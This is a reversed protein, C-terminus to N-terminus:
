FFEPKETQKSLVWNYIAHVQKAKVEWTFYNRVRVRAAEGLLMLNQPNNTIDNLKHRLASVVESRDGIPIKYGVEKTVLEGPGAYDIVVPVLGLAMAELVVGGGFERISPFSFIQSRCMVKQLRTHEVWGHLTVYNDLRENLITEKLFPMLPGDGIIDLKLKGARLLPAAAELLMDPGKYPVLRGVFCARLIGKQIQGAKSSFRSPDIANEPLYVCKSHCRKPMQKLTDRSGVILASSHKLTSRYGPLLKYADRIYSLWEKEKRREADFARPWPVGGNLPGIIFPVNVRTIKRAILSPATPTLPTIRHVLDFKGKRIDERFKKWLLWEFYYYSLSSIATAMTWAKDSGGRLVQSFKWLPRAIAESNIATFDEGEVLGAALFSDRNRVHTVLHADVISRLANALSWGVLPVSTWEPNAAEAIILVKLKEPM